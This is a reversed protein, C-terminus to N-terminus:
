SIWTLKKEPSIRPFELIQYCIFFYKYFYKDDDEGSKLMLFDM